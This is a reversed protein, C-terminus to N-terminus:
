GLTLLPEELLMLVVVPAGAGREFELARELEMALLILTGFFGAELPVALTPLRISRKCTGGNGSPPDSSRSEEEGEDDVGGAGGGSGVAYM